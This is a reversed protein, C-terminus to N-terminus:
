SAQFLLGPDLHRKAIKTVILIINNYEEKDKIQYKNLRRHRSTEASLLNYHLGTYLFVFAFEGLLKSWQAPPRFLPYQKPFIAKSWMGMFTVNYRALSGYSCDQAMVFSIVASLVTIICSLSAMTAKTM